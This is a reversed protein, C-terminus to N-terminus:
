FFVEKEAVAEQVKAKQDALMKELLRIRDRDREAARQAYKKKLWNKMIDTDANKHKQIRM